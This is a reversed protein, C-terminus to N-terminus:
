TIKALKGRQTLSMKLLLEALNAGEADGNSKALLLCFQVSGDKVNKDDLVVHLSGWSPNVEHYACFSGIIEPTLVFASM